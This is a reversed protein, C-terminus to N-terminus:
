CPLSKWAELMVQQFGEPNELYMHHGGEAVRRVQIHDPDGMEERVVEAHRYDMWDRDGYIFWVPLKGDKLHPIRDRLPLRAYAGPALVVGLAYEGSGSASTIHYMYKHFVQREEESLHAMRRNVYRGVLGPGFPGSVRVLWQPTISWDWVKAVWSPVKRPPGGGQQRHLESEPPPLESARTDKFLSSDEPRLVIEKADPLNPNRPIGVPSILILAEIHQPYMEAYAVALYGGFSHGALIFREIGLSQRWCNLSDVFFREAQKIRKQEDKEAVKFPVRASRGMGLWDISYIRSNELSALDHYNRYFFGLGAGFGHALVLTKKSHTDDADIHALEAVSPVHLLDDPLPKKRREVYLTNIFGPRQRRNVFLSMYSLRHKNKEMNETENNSNSTQASKFSSSSSATECHSSDEGPLDIHVPGLRVQIENKKTDLANKQSEAHEHTFFDLHYAILQAEASRGDSESTPWLYESVSFRSKQASSANTSTKSVSSTSITTPMTSATPLSFSSDAM